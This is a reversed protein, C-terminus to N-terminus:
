LGEICGAALPVCARTALCGNSSQRPEKMLFLILKAPARVYRSFCFKLCVSATQALRSSQGTQCSCSTCGAETACQLQNVHMRVPLFCANSVEYDVTPINANAEADFPTDSVRCLTEKIDAAVQEVHYRRFSETVDPLSRPKAQLLRFM